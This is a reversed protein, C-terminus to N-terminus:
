KTANTAVTLVMWNSKQLSIIIEETTSTSKQDIPIWEYRRDYSGFINSILLGYEDTPIEFLCLCLTLRCFTEELEM